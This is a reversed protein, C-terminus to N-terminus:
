KKARKKHALLHPGRGQPHGIFDCQPCHWMTKQHAKMHGGQSVIAMTKNCQPCTWQNGPVNNTARYSVEISAEGVSIVLPAGSRLVELDRSDLLVAQKM